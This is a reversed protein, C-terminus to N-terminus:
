PRARKWGLLFRKSLPRDEWPKSINRWCLLARPCSPRTWTTRRWAAMAEPKPGEALIAPIAQPHPSGRHCTNCTVGRKGDFNNKNIAFMMQMMERATKKEDKDDKDFELKGAPSAVHCFECEVGLAATIFQMSPILQDAPIDKLVQINKYKQAATQTAGAATPPQSQAPGARAAGIM